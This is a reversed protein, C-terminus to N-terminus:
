YERSYEMFRMLFVFQWCGQSISMNALWLGRKCGETWKVCLNRGKWEGWGLNRKGPRRLCDDGRTKMGRKWHVYTYSSYPTEIWIPERTDRDRILKQKQSTRSGHIVCKRPLDIHLNGLTGVYLLTPVRWKGTCRRKKRAASWRGRPSSKPWHFRKKKKEFFFRFTPFPSLVATSISDDWQRYICFYEIAM